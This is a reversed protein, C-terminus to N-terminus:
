TAGISMSENSTKPSEYPKYAPYLYPQRIEAEILIVWQTVASRARKLWQCREQPHQEELRAPARTTTEGVWGRRWRGM